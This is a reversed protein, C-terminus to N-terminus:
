QLSWYTTDDDTMAGQGIWKYFYVLIDKGSQLFVQKSTRGYIDTFIPNALETGDSDYIPAVTNGDKYCFYIKGHLINGKNDLYRNWNDFNRLAIKNM